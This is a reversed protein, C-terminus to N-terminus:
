SLYHLRTGSFNQRNPLMRCVMFISQDVFPATLNDRSCKMVGWFYPAPHQYSIALM